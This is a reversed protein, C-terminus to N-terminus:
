GGGQGPKPEEVYTEVHAKVRGRELDAYGYPEVAKLMSWFAEVWEGDRAQGSLTIIADANIWFHNEEAPEAIDRLTDATDRSFQNVISFRKLDEPEQLTCDGNENILLYM